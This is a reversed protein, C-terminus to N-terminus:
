PKKGHDIGVSLTPRAENIAKLAAEMATEAPPSGAAVRAADLEDLRSIGWPSLFDAIATEEDLKLQLLEKGCEELGKVDAKDAWKKAYVAIELRATEAKEAKERIADIGPQLAALLLTRKDTPNKTM